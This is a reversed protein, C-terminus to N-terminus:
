KKIASAVDSAVKEFFADTMTVKVPTSLIGNKIADAQIKSTVLILGIAMVGVSTGAIIVDRNDRVFKKIRDM